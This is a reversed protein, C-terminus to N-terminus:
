PSLLEEPPVRVVEALHADLEGIEFRCMGVVHWFQSAVEGEGKYRGDPTFAAWGEPLGLLTMRAPERGSAASWLRVTGDASGSALQGGSPRFAVSLVRGTHGTLTHELAGTRPDWIRIALDDGATALLSGPADFAVTWLRGGHQDLVHRTSATAVDWV